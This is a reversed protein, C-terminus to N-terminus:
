GKALLLTAWDGLQQRDLLVAGQASYAAVVDDAQTNLIGSLVLRGDAKLRSFVADANEILPGALINAVILAFPSADQVLPADCFDSQVTEVQSACGNRELNELATSVADPDNDAAIIRADPWLRAAGIALIASGCGLDVVEPPRFGGAELAEMTLLCGRTTEHEGTGFAIGADLRIPMIDPPLGGDFHSPYVFFRGITQPGVSNQYASVWDTDPLREISVSPIGIDAAAAIAAIRSGIKGEDPAAVCYGVLDFPAGGQRELLTVADAFEELAAEFAEGLERTPVVLRIEWGADSDAETM